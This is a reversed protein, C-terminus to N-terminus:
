CAMCTFAEWMASICKAQHSFLDGRL